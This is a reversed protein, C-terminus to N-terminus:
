IAIVEVASGNIYKVGGGALTLMRGYGRRHTIVVITIGKVIVVGSGAM